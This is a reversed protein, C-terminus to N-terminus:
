LAERNGKRTDELRERILSQLAELNECRRIEDASLWEQLDMEDQLFAAPLVAEIGYRRRFEDAHLFDTEVDLDHLFLKWARRVGFPSHTLACLSCAYTEPSIVKQISDSLANLIGSDAAYVFVLAPKM